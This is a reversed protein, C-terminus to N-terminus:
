VLRWMYCLHFTLGPSWHGSTQIMFFCEHTVCSHWGTVSNLKKRSGQNYFIATHLSHYAMGGSPMIYVHVFLRKFRQLIMWNTNLCPCEWLYQVCISLHGLFSNLIKIKLLLTSRLDAVDSVATMNCAGHQPANVHQKLGLPECGKVWKARCFAGNVLELFLQM